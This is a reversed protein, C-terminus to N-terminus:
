SVESVGTTKGTRTWKKQVAKPDAPVEARIEPDHQGSDKLTALNVTLASQPDNVQM